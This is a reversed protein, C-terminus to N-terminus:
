SGVSSIVDAVTNVQPIDANCWRLIWVWVEKAFPYTVLIHNADEAVYSCFSCVLSSLQIGRCLLACAYPIRGLYARWVFCLVKIPVEHIWDICHVGLHASSRDIKHRLVNVYYDGDRSLRYKWHDGSASPQFLDIEVPSRQLRPHLYHHQINFWLDMKEPPPGSGCFRKRRQIHSSTSKKNNFPRHQLLHSSSFM